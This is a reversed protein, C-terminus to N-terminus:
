ALNSRGEAPPSVSRACRSRGRVPAPSRQESQLHGIRARAGARDRDLDIRVGLQHGLVRPAEAADRGVGGVVQRVRRLVVGRGPREDEAVLALQRMRVRGLVVVRRHHGGGHRRDRALGARGRVLVAPRLARVDADGLLGRARAVVAREALALAPLQAVLDGHGGAGRPREPDRRRAGVLPGRGGPLSSAPRGRRDRRRLERGLDGLALAPAAEGPERQGAVLTERRGDVPALLVDEIEGPDGLVQLDAPGVLALLERRGLARDRAGAPHAGAEGVIRPHERVSPSYVANALTATPWNSAISSWRRASRSM